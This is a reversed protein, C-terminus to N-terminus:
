KRKGRRGKIVSWERGWWECERGEGERGPVGSEEGKGVEEVRGEGCSWKNGNWDM